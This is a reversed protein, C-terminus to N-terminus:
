RQRQLQQGVLRGPRVDRRRRCREGPSPVPTPATNTPTWFAALAPTGLLPGSERGRQDAGWGGEAPREAQRDERRDGGVAGLVQEGRM